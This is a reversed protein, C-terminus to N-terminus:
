DVRILETFTVRWTYRERTLAVHYLVRPESTSLYEWTVASEGLQTGSERVMWLFETPGTVHARLWEADHFLDSLYHSVVPIARKVMQGYLHALITTGKGEDEFTYGSTLGVTEQGCMTKIM